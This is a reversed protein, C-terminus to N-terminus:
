LNMVIKNEEIRNVLWAPKYGTPDCTWNVQEPAYLISVLCQNSDKLSNQLQLVYDEALVWGYFEEIENEELRAFERTKPNIYTKAM